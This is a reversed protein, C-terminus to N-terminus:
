PRRAKVRVVRTRRRSRRLSAGFPDPGSLKERLVPVLSVLMDPTSARYVIDKPMGKPIKGLDVLLLRGGLRRLTARFEVTTWHKRVYDASSLVLVYRSEQGYVHPLVQNLDEGWLYASQKPAFFVGFEDRLQAWIGEAVALDESAYSIALDWPKTRSSGTGLWDLFLSPGRRIRDDDVTVLCLTRALVSMERLAKWRADRLLLSRKVGDAPLTRLFQEGRDGLQRKWVEFNSLGEEFVKETADDFSRGRWLHEFLRMLLWPHGGAAEFVQALDPHSPLHEALAKISALGLPQLRVRRATNLPPSGKDDPNRYRELVPGGVLLFSLARKFRTQDLYRLYSLFSGAWPESLIRDAEDCVITLPVRTALADELMARSPSVAGVAVGISELM